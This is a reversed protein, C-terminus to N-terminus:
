QLISKFNSSSLFQSLGFNWLRSVKSSWEFHPLCRSSSIGTINEQQASRLCRFTSFHIWDIKNGMKRFWESIVLKSLSKRAPCEHWALGFRPNISNFAVAQQWTITQRSIFNIYYWTEHTEHAKEGDWDTSVRRAILCLDVPLLICHFTNKNWSFWKQYRPVSAATRRRLLVISLALTM